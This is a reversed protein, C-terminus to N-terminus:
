RLPSLNRIAPLERLAVLNRISHQPYTRILPALGEGTMSAAPALIAVGAGVEPVVGEAAATALVASVTVGLSLAPMVGAADAGACPAEITVSISYDVVVWVQTCRTAVYDAAKASRLKIRAELADVEGWTWALGTNPNTNYAESYNAYSTTVTRETGEYNTGYTRLGVNLSTQDPTAAARARAYVTVSNITGSGAHATLGVRCNPYGGLYNNHIYTTDDDAVVEDIDEYLSEGADPFLFINNNTETSNPRLTETGM